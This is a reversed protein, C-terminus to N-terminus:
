RVEQCQDVKLPMAPFYYQHDLSDMKIKKMHIKLMVKEKKNKTELIWMYKMM